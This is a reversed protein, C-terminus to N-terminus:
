TILFRRRVNITPLYVAALAEVPTMLIKGIRLGRISIAVVLAWHTASVAYM